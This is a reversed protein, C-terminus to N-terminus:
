QGAGMVDLRELLAMAHDPDIKGAVTDALARAARLPDQPDVKPRSLKTVGAIEALALAAAVRLHPKQQDSTAVAHLVRLYSPLRTQAYQRAASIPDDGDPWSDDDEPPPPAGAQALDWAAARADWSWRRRWRRANTESVLGAKV